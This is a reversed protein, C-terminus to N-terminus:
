EWMLLGDEDRSVRKEVFLAGAGPIRHDHPEEDAVVPQPTPQQKRSRLAALAQELVEAETFAELTWNVM